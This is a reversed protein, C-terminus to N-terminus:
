QATARIQPDIEQARKFYSLAKDESGTREFIEALAVLVDRSKPSKAELMLLKQVWEDQKLYSGFVTAYQEVLSDYWVEDILHPDGIEITARLYMTKVDEANGIRSFLRPGVRHAVGISIITWVTIVATVCVHMIHQRLIPRGQSM